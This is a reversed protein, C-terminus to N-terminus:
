YLTHQISCARSYSYIDINTSHITYAAHEVAGGGMARLKSKLREALEHVAAENRGEVVHFRSGDARVYGKGSAGKKALPEHHELSSFVTSAAAVVRDRRAEAAVRKSTRRFKGSASESEVAASEGFAGNGSGSAKTRRRRLGLETEGNFEDGNEDDDDEEDDEDEDNEAMEARARLIAASAATEIAGAERLATAIDDFGREIAHDLSSKNYKDTAEVDAECELLLQVVELHGCYAAHMILTGGQNNRLETAGTGIVALALQKKTLM